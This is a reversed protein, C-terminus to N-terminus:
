KRYEKDLIADLVIIDFVRTKMARLNCRYIKEDKRFMLLSLEDYEQLIRNRLNYCKLFGEERWLGRRIKEIFFQREGRNKFEGMESCGIKRQEIIGDIQKRLLPENINIDIHSKINKTTGYHKIITKVLMNHYKTKDIFFEYYIGRLVFLEDSSLEMSEMVLAKDVIEKLEELITEYGKHHNEKGELLLSKREVISDYKSLVTDFDMRYEESITTRKLKGDLMLIDLVERRVEKEISYKKYYLLKTFEEFINGDFNVSFTNTNKSLKAAVLGELIKELCEEKKTIIKPELIMIEIVNALFMRLIKEHYRIVSYEDNYNYEGSERVKKDSFRFLANIRSNLHCSARRYKDEYSICCESLFLRLENLISYIVAESGVDDDSVLNCGRKYNKRTSDIPIFQLMYGILVDFYQDKNMIKSINRNPRLKKKEENGCVGKNSENKCLKCEDNISRFDVYSELMNSFAELFEVQAKNGFGTIDFGMEVIANYRVKLQNYVFTFDERNSGVKKNALETIVSTMRYDM